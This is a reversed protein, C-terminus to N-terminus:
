LLKMVADCMGNFIMCIGYWFTTLYYLGILPWTFKTHKLFWVVAQYSHAHMVNNNISCALLM